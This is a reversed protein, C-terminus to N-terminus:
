KSNAGGHLALSYSLRKADISIGEKLYNDGKGKEWTGRVKVEYDFM